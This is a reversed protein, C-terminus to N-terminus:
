TQQQNVLYAGELLSQELSDLQLLSHSHNVSCVELYQLCLKRPELYVQDLQRSDLGVQHKLVGALLLQLLSHLVLFGQQQSVRLKAELYVEVKHPSSDESCEVEWLLSSYLDQHVRLKDLLLHRLRGSVAV